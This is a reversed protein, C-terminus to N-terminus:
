NKLEKLFRKVFNKIWKGNAEKSCLIIGINHIRDLSHQRKKGYFNLLIRKIDVM